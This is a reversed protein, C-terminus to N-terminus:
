QGAVEGAIEVWRDFSVGDPSTVCAAHARGALIAASDTADPYEGAVHTLLLRAEADPTLTAADDPVVPKM